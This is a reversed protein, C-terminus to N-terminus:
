ATKAVCGNFTGWFKEMGRHAVETTMSEVPSMLKLEDAVATFSLYDFEGIDAFTQSVSEEDLMNMEHVYSPANLEKQVQVLKAESRSLLHVIAGQESCMKTLSRGIGSSAGVIVVKKDKM